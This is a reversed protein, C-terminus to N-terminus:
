VISVQDDLDAAFLNASGAVSSRVTFYAYGAADSKSNVAEITDIANRSSYLVVRNNPVPNNNATMLRVSINLKSSGNALTSSTTASVVSNTPGTGLVEINIQASLTKGGGTATITHNTLSRVTTPTGSIVGTSANFNLGAPLAPSISFSSGSGPTMTPVISTIATNKTLSYFGGSYSLGGSSGGGVPNNSASASKRATVSAPKSIKFDNCAALSFAFCLSVISTTWRELSTRFKGANRM